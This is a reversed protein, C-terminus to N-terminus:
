QNCSLTFISGLVEGMSALPDVFLYILFACKGEVYGSAQHCLLQDTSM